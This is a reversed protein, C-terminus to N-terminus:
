LEKDKKAKFYRIMEGYGLERNLGEIAMSIRKIRTEITKASSIWNSFYRQHGKTLTEFFRLAHPELELTALFDGDLSREETDEELSLIVKEGLNVQLTKRIEANLPLIFDGNGMPLLAVFSIKTSGIFGKVRFSTKTDPKIQNAIESVVELFTWGTKEGMKQFKQFVSEFSVKAM